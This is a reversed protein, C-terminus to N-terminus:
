QLGMYAWERSRMEMNSQLSVLMGPCPVTHSRLKCRGDARGGEASHGQLFPRFESSENGEKLFTPSQFTLSFSFGKYLKSVYCNISKIFAPLLHKTSTSASKWTVPFSHSARLSTIQRLCQMDSLGIDLM